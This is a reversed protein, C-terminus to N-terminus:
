VPKSLAVLLTTIASASRIIHKKERERARYARAFLYEIRLYFTVLDRPIMIFPTARTKVIKFLIILLLGCLICVRM